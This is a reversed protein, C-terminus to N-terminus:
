KCIVSDAMLTDPEDMDCDGEEAGFDDCVLYYGIATMQRGRECSGPADDVLVEFDCGALRYMKRKPYNGDWVKSIKGTATANGDDHKELCAAAAPNAAALIASVCLATKLWM